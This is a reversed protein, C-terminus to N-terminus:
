KVGKKVKSLNNKYIELGAYIRKKPIAKSWTNLSLKEDM